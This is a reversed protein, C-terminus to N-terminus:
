SRVSERKHQNALRRALIRQRVAWSVIIEPAILMALMIGLRRLAVRLWGEHPGPINPHVSVWTCLFITFLSSWVIQWLTRCGNPDDCFAAENAVLIPSPKSITSFPLAQVATLLTLALLM